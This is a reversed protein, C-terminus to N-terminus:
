NSLRPHSRWMNPKPYSRETRNWSNNHNLNSPMNNNHQSTELDTHLKVRQYTQSSLILRVFVQSAKFELTSDDLQRRLDAEVSRNSKLKKKSSDVASITARENKALKKIPIFKKSRM